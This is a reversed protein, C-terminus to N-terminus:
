SATPPSTTTRWNVTPRMTTLDVRHRHRRVTAFLSTILNDSLRHPALGLDVLGSHVVHYYHADQEVRPNDLYEIETPGPYCETITKAIQEVSMTETMQNFVRFEGPAAPSECALRICDVTDQIDILGRTQGGSGYVT